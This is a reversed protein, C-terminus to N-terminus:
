PNNAAKISIRIHVTVWKARVVFNGMEVARTSNLVNAAQIAGYETFAFPLVKSFKLKNLHDCNTVVELKESANLKNLSRSCM